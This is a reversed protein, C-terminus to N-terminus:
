RPRSRNVLSCLQWGKSLFLVVVVGVCVTWAWKQPTEWTLILDFHVSSGNINFPRTVSRTRPTNYLSQVYTLASGTHTFFDACSIKQGSLLCYDPATGSSGTDCSM